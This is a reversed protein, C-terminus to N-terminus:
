VFFINPMNSTSSFFDILQIERKGKDLLEFGEDAFRHTEYKRTFEAFDTATVDHEHVKLEGILSETGGLTFEVEGVNGAEDGM